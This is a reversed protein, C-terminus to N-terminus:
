AGPLREVHEGTGPVQSTHRETGVALAEDRGAVVVAHLNPIRCTSLQEVGVPSMASGHQVGREGRVPPPHGRRIRRAVDVDPVRLRAAQKAGHAAMRPGHATDGETQLAPAEGRRSDVSRNPHPVERPVLFRILEVPGPGCPIHNETGIALEEGGGAVAM